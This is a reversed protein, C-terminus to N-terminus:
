LGKESVNIGQKPSGLNPPFCMSRRKPAIIKKLNVEALREAALMAVLGM